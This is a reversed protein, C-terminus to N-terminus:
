AMRRFLWARAYTWHRSATARSIGLTECAQEISLGGFFRLTVLKAKLPDEQALAELADDLAILQEDDISDSIQELEFDVRRAGGGRKLRQKSRANEVLIRRMATAAAAFFHGVSDWQKDQDPAVLRLYVENVLATPQLTQGVREQALRATALNRLEGYVLQFLQESAQPQGQQQKEILAQFQDHVSEPTSEPKM